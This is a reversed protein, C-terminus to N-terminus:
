KKSGVWVLEKKKGSEVEGIRDRISAIVEVRTHIDVEVKDLAAQAAKLTVGGFGLVKEANKIVYMGCDWTTLQERSTWPLRLTVDWGCSGELFGELLTLANTKKPRAHILSDLVAYTRDEPYVVILYWHDVEHVVILRTDQSAKDGWYGLDSKGKAQEFQHWDFPPVLVVRNDEKHERLATIIAIIYEGSLWGLYKSGSKLFCYLDKYDIRTGGLYYNGSRIISSEGGHM